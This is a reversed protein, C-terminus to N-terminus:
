LICTNRPGLEVSFGVITGHSPHMSLVFPWRKGTHRKETWLEM